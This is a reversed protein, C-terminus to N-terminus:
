FWRLMFATLKETSNTTLSPMLYFKSNHQAYGVGQSWIWSMFKPHFMVDPLSDEDIFHDIAWQRQVAYLKSIDIEVKPKKNFYEEIDIAM